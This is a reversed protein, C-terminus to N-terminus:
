TRKPPSQRSRHDLYSALALVLYLAALGTPVWRIERDTVAILLGVVFAAGLFFFARRDM